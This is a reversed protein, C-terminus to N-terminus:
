PVSYFLFFPNWCYQNKAFSIVELCDRLHLRPSSTWIYREVGRPPSTLPGGQRKGMGRNPAGARNHGPSGNLLNERTITPHTCQKRKQAVMRCCAACYFLIRHHPSLILAASSSSFSQRKTLVPKDSFVDVVSRFNVVIKTTYSFYLYQYRPRRPPFRESGYIHTHRTTRRHM